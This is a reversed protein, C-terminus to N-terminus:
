CRRVTWAFFLNWGLYIVLFLLPPTISFGLFLDNGGKGEFLRSLRQTNFAFLGKEVQSQFTESELSPTEHAWESVLYHHWASLLTKKHDSSHPSSPAYHEIVYSESPFISDPRQPPSFYLTSGYGIVLLPLIWTSYSAGEISFLLLLCIFFSFFLWALVYPSSMALLNKVSTWYPSPPATQFQAFGKELHHQEEIPLAHYLATRGTVEEYLFTVVEKLSHTKLPPQILMWGLYTGVLCLHFIIMIKSKRTRM